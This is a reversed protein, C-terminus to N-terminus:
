PRQYVAVYALPFRRMGKANVCKVGPIISAARWSWYPVAALPPWLGGLIKGSLDVLADIGGGVEHVSTVSLNHKSGFHILKYRTYRHYDHPEEHLFYFFPVGVIAHGGPRLIRTIESFLADPEAIHELVDSLLVTDFSMDPFPLPVNLDAVVDVEADQHASNPWDVWVVDTVM